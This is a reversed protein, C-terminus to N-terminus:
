NFKILGRFYWSLHNHMCEKALNENASNIANYIDIHKKKAIELDDTTKMYSLYIKKKVAISKYAEIIYSNMSALIIHSHFMDDLKWVKNTEHNACAEVYQDMIKKLEALQKVSISRAAYYAATEEIMLRFECFEMYDKIDIRYVYSGNEGKTILKENNLRILADRIPTRSMNLQKSLEEQNLKEGIELNGSIIADLLVEYALEGQSIFPNNERKRSISKAFDVTKM